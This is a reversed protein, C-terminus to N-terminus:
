AEPWVIGAETAVADLRADHPLVPVADVEQVAFGCGIARVGPLGAITRDYYGGGYGLRYGRRDFALLPVLLVDPTVVAGDPRLTGFREPVMAVGPRWRRFMLAQGLPPTEPLAVVHGRGVLALLLPRVDVEGALPWFGAVVEGPRVLGAALVHGALRWGWVAQCTSRRARALARADAKVTPDSM